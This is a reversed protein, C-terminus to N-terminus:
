LFNSKIQERAHQARREAARKEENERQLVERLMKELAKKRTSEIIQANVGHLAVKGPLAATVAQFQDSQDEKARIDRSRRNKLMAPPPQDLRLEQWGAKMPSQDVILVECDKAPSLEGSTVLRDYEVIPLGKKLKHIFQCKPGYPCWGFQSFKDCLQTKYKPHAKGKPQAPLRLEQEGHAFRCADGYSCKGNRRYADCLATKFAEEKRKKRLAEEREEDTLVQQDSTQPLPQLPPQGPIHGGLVTEEHAAEVHRPMEMNVTRPFSVNYDAFNTIPFCPLQPRMVPIGPMLGGDVTEELAEPLHEVDQFTNYGVNSLMRANLPSSVGMEHLSSPLISSPTITKMTPSPFANQVCGSLNFFPNM